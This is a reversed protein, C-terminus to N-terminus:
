NIKGQEQMLGGQKWSVTVNGGWQGGGRRLEVDQTLPMGRCCKDGLGRVVLMDEIGGHVVVSPTHDDLVLRAGLDPLKVLPEVRVGFIRQEYTWDWLSLGTPRHEVLFREGEAGREM